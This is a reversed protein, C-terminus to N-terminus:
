EIVELDELRYLSQLLEIENKPEIFAVLAFQHNKQLIGCPTGILEIKNWICAYNPTYEKTLDWTIDDETEIVTDIKAITKDFAALLENFDTETEPIISQFM